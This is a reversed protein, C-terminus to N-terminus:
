RHFKFKIPKTFNIFKKDKKLFRQIAWKGTMLAIPLGGPMLAWQGSVQLNKVGKVKGNYYYMSGNATYAFPMYAGHFANTYRNLTKPTFIDIVELHNKLTPFREEIRRQVDDALEQKKLNYVDKTKYIEDWFEYDKDSQFVLTNLITKGNRVFYPDYNYARIKLSQEFSDGAEFPECPFEYTSTIGLKRYEEEDVSFTVLCCSQTPYTKTLKLRKEFGPVVYRNKLLKKITEISDCSAIIYDAKEVTGDVLRVGVAKGGVIIIDEIEKNYHIKGGVESYKRVMNDIITRSGGKPLGGNGVSVTGFAYLTTYLNGDGPVIHNLLHRIQPSKFKLSYKFNSKKTAYIYDKLYPFLSFGVKILKWLSMESVPIDVPLHLNQFSLIMKITKKIMRKDEPSIDILEKELKNLDCWLTIPTGECEITGFDKPEIIDEQLFAGVDKWMANIETKDKTGTLWHICGDVPMGKRYWATCLGGAVPNKEFIETIYGHKQGYIGSSLGSIGGGIIIVKKIEKNKVDKM